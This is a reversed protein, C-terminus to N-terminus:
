GNNAESPIDDISTSEPPLIAAATPLEITTDSVESKEKKITEAKVQATKRKSPIYQFVLYHGADLVVLLAMGGLTIPIFFKYFLNVYYVLGYKSPSPIYHSMWATPFNATADPHCRKCRVLLNEKILLGTQPNDVHSIDHVGHCDYCVPKDVQADPSQKEFVMVTTGHFDSVYTNFVETSLGYRAMLDTDTHCRACLKPSKLRFYATTPDEINHVGHCDICTPVDPNGKTLASGHVSTLYKQYITSHCLACRQPIWTKADPLLEHNEPDKLRRIEHATHCDVCVAAERKGAAMAVAHVSDAALEYQHYHCRKCVETLRITVDRKDAANFPLHPYEGVTTHCQVCAYGLRGHISGLHEEAPVYLDLIDGNELEITQGPKGHCELCVEDAISLNETPESGPEQMFVPPTSSVKSLPTSTEQSLPAASSNPVLYILAASLLVLSVLLTIIIVPRNRM